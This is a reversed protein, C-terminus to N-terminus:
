RWATRNVLGFSTQMKITFSTAPHGVPLQVNQGKTLEGGPRKV